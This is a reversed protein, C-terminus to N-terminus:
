IDTMSTIIDGVCGLKWRDSERLSGRRHCGRRRVPRLHAFRQRQRNALAQFHRKADYEANLRTQWQLWKINSVQPVGARPALLIWMVM